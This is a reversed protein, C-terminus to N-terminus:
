VEGVIKSSLNVNTTLLISKRASILESSVKLGICLMVSETEKSAAARRGKLRARFDDVDDRIM